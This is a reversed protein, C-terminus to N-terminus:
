ALRARGRRYSAMNNAKATEISVNGSIGVVRSAFGPAEEIVVRAVGGGGSRDGRNPHIYGSRRATFLEPGREGVLYTRGSSVPGGAARAGDIKPKGFTSAINVGADIVAGLIDLFNGSKVASSVSQLSGSISRAANEFNTAMRETTSESKTELDEFAEGTAATAAQAVAVMNGELLGMHHGIQAVMDPIYSHGVVADYLKYFQDGVWKLKKAVWEFHATLKDVLWQKVGNVLNVVWSLCADLIPKIKDWNKWALYVGGIAAAVAALPLLIPSLAAIAAGIAPIVTGTVIAALAGFAATVPGIAPLLVGFASIIGSIGLAVPGIAAALATAGVIFTQVGPDLKNFWELLGALARSLPPLVKIAIAGITEQFDAWAQQAEIGPTAKRLAEASGGYQRELEALILRQAGAADGAAVMAKVQEQQAATFSVGVRALASLGKVPDNLAKGLQIASSQLDQGLRASLNVAALQARDFVDGTVNGFTLMNATVKRMIDDDDFTSLRMLASAQEQLQPLTRRAADGMSTLAAQVQGIAEQSEKAAPISSALLATFPATIGVSMAAGINAFTGATKQLSRQAAKLKKGADGLGEEFALSDLGLTYKLYGLVVGGGAM